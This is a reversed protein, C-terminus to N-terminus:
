GGAASAARALAVLRGAEALARGRLDETRNKGAQARSRIAEFDAGIADLTGLADQLERASEEVARWDGNHSVRVREFALHRALEYVALLIEEAFPHGPELHLSVVNRERSFALSRDAYEKPLSERHAGVVVVVHADRNARAKEVDVLSLPKTERDRIEFALRPSTTVAVHECALSILTDGKMSRGSRGTLRDVHQVDDGRMGGITSLLAQIEAEYSYGEQVPDRQADVAQQRIIYEKLLDLEQRVLDFLSKMEDRVTTLQHHLLGGEQFLREVRGVLEDTREKVRREIEDGKRGLVAPGLQEFEAKLERKAEEVMERARQQLFGDREGDGVHRSLTDAVRQEFGGLATDIQGNVFRMTDRFRENMDADMALSGVRLARVINEPWKAEPTRTLYGAVEADNVVLQEIVVTGNAIRVAADDPLQHLSAPVNSL